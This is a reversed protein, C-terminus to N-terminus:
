VFTILRDVNMSLVQLRLCEAPTPNAYSSDGRTSQTLVINVAKHVLHLTRRFQHWREDPREDCTTAPAWFSSRTCFRSERRNFALLSDKDAALRIFVFLYLSVSAEVAGIHGHHLLHLLGEKTNDAYEGLKVLPPIFATLLLSSWWPTAHLLMDDEEVLDARRQQNELKRHNIPRNGTEEALDSEDESHSLDQANIDLSDNVTSACLTERISIFEQALSTSVATAVVVGNGNDRKLAQVVDRAVDVLLATIGPFPSERVLKQLLLLLSRPEFLRLHMKLADFARRSLNEDPCRQIATLSAQIIMLADCSKSTLQALVFVCDIRELLYSPDRRATPALQGEKGASIRELDLKQRIMEFNYKSQIAVFAALGSTGAQAGVMSSVEAPPLRSQDPELAVCPVFVYGPHEFLCDETDIMNLSKAMLSGSTPILRALRELLELAETPAVKSSQLLPYLVASGVEFLYSKSYIQPLLSMETSDMFAGMDDTTCYVEPCLLVHAILAYGLMPHPVECFLGYRAAQKKLSKLATPADLKDGHNLLEDLLRDVSSDLLDSLPVLAAGRSIGANSSMRRAVDCGERTRQSAQCACAFAQILNRHNTEGSGPVQRWIMREFGTICMGKTVRDDLGSGYLGHNRCIESHPDQHKLLYTYVSWYIHRRRETHALFYIPDVGLDRTLTVTVNCLCRRRQPIDSIHVAVATLMNLVFGTLDRQSESLLVDDDSMSKIDDAASNMSRSSEFSNSPTGYWTTSRRHLGKVFCLTLTLIDSLSLADVHSDASANTDTTTMTTHMGINNCEKDLKRRVFGTISSTIMNLVSAQRKLMANSSGLSLQLSYLIFTLTSSTANEVPLISQLCSLKEQMQMLSERANVVRSSLLAFNLLRKIDLDRQATSDNNGLSLDFVRDALEWSCEDLFTSYLAPVTHLQDFSSLTKLSSLLAKNSYFDEQDTTDSM